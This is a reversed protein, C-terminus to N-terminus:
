QLALWAMKIPQMKGSNGGQLIAPQFFADCANAASDGDVRASRRRMAIKAAAQEAKAAKGFRQCAKVARQLQVRVMRFRLIIAAIGQGLQLAKFFRDGGIIASQRQPWFIRFRMAIAAMRQRIPMVQLFREGRMFGREPKPWVRCFKMGIDRERKKRQVAMYLCQSGIILRQCQVGPLYRRQNPARFHQEGKTPHWFRQGTSIRCDRRVRMTQIAMQPTRAHKNQKALRFGRQFRRGKRAVDRRLVRFRMDAM